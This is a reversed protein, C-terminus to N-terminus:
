GAVEGDLEALLADAITVADPPIDEQRVFCQGDGFAIMGSALRWATEAEPQGVQIRGMITIETDRDITKGRM